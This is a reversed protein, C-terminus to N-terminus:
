IKEKSISEIGKNLELHRAIHEHFHEERDAVDDINEKHDNCQIEECMTTDKDIVSVQVKGKMIIYYEEGEEGQYFVTEGAEKFQYKMNMAIELLDRRNLLDM